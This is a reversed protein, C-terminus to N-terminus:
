LYALFNLVAEIYCQLFISWFYITWYWCVLYLVFTAFKLNWHFIFILLLNKGWRSPRIIEWGNSSLLHAFLAFYKFLDSFYICLTLKTTSYNLNEQGRNFISSKNLVHDRIYYFGARDCIWAVKFMIHFAFAVRWASPLSCIKLITFAAVIVESIIMILVSPFKM